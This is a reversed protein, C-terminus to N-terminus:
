ENNHILSELTHHIKMIEPGVELEFAKILQSIRSLSQFLAIQNFTTQPFTGSIFRILVEQQSLPLLTETSKGVRTFLIAKLELSDLMSSEINFHAKGDLRKRLGSSNQLKSTGVAHPVLKLLGYIGFIKPPNVSSIACYDDGTTKFGNQLSIATTTSKGSGGQGILLLGKGNRGIGASHIIHVGRSFLAWTLINRLPAGFEWEPLRSSQSVWFIGKNTLHDFANLVSHELDFSALVDGSDLGRIRNGDLFDESGWPSVVAGAGELAYIEIDPKITSTKAQWAFAPYIYEWLGQSAVHIRIQYQAISIDIVQSHSQRNSQFNAISDQILQAAIFQASM